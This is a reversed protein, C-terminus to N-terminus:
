DEWTDWFELQRRMEVMEKGKNVPFEVRVMHTKGQEGELVHTEAQCNPNIKKLYEVVRSGDAKEDDLIDYLDLLQKYLM